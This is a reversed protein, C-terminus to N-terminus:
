PEIIELRVQQGEKAASVRLLTRIANAVRGKKGIIRGMDDAAVSLELVISSAEAVDEVRVQDPNDVISRALQRTLEKLKAALESKPDEPQM